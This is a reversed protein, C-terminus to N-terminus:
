IHKWTKGQGLYTITTRNVGYQRALIAPRTGSQYEKRIIRAQDETLKARGHQSGKLHQHRDKITRDRVNDANTGLFLHSPNVCGPNDCHHCIFMGVPIDGHAFMYAMRHANRARGKFMFMGYGQHKSATWEWCESEAAIKVKSWFRNKIYEPDHKFAWREIPEGLYLHKPNVCSRNRCAHLVCMGHPIDGIKIKYATRYAEENHHSKAQFRPAGDRSFHGLWEWCDEPKSIAVKEWFREELTPM